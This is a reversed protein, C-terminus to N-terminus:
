KGSNAFSGNQVHEMDLLRHPASVVGAKRNCKLAAHMVELGQPVHLGEFVLVLLVLLLLLM